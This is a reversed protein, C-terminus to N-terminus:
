PTGLGRFVIAVADDTKRYDAASARASAALAGVEEVIVGTSSSFAALLSDILPSIDGADVSGPASETGEIGDIAGELRHAIAEIGDPSVDIGSM